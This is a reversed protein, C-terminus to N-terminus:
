KSGRIIIAEVETLGNGIVEMPEVTLQTLYDPLEDPINTCDWFWWCDVISQPTSHIYDINLAKMVAVPHRLTINECQRGYTMCDFRLNM